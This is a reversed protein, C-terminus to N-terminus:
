SERFARSMSDMVPKMIYEFFTRGGTKIYVEAPMGPKPKFNRNNFSKEHDLAVRAVYGDATQGPKADDPLADASVYIVHGHAMPTTRQELAVLRVEAQQGLEVHDIDQPRVRVEIILDDPQPVIELIPKGPEIVGGATHYRLKVVVGRAPAKIEIRSLIDQAARIRERTDALDAGAKHLEEVADKIAAARVGAIDERTKAIREKADGMDGGLRGIEGALGAEARQLALLESKKILGKPLLTQKGEIEEKILKVQDKVSQEQIVGADIRKQLANISENL